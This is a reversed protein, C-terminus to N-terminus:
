EICDVKGFCSIENQRILLGGNEYLGYVPNNKEEVVKEISQKQKKSAHYHPEISFGRLCGLGTEYKFQPYEEDPTIHYSDLLVMAGASYGIMLGKYNKLCPKLKLEKIRKMMLDPAGGTLFIINSKEIKEEIEQRSDIFYNVWHIQSEKIGYKFFVNTHEVYEMGQGKKYQRNWDKESKVDDFFSLALVCVEDQPHIYKKLVPFCWPADITSDSMMVYICNADHIGAQRIYKESDITMGNKVNNGNYVFLFDEETAELKKSVKRWQNWTCVFVQKHKQFYSDSFDEKRVFHIWEM